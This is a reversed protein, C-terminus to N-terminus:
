VATRGLLYDTSCGFTDAMLSLKSQPINGSRIWNYLTKRSVGLVNALDDNTMNARAREAAINPYKMEAIKM